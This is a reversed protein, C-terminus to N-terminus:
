KGWSQESIVEMSRSSRVGKSNMMVTNKLDNNSSICQWSTAPANLPNINGRVTTLTPKLCVPVLFLTSWIHSTVYGTILPCPHEELGNNIDFAVSLNNSFRYDKNRWPEETEQEHGKTKDKLNLNLVIYIRWIAESLFYASDQREEKVFGAPQNWHSRAVQTHFRDPVQSPNQVCAPMTDAKQCCRVKSTEHSGEWGPVWM